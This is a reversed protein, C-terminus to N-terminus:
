IALDAEVAILCPSKWESDLGIQRNELGLLSLANRLEKKGNRVFSWVNRLERRRIGRHCLVKKVTLRWYQMPRTYLNTIGLKRQEDAIM